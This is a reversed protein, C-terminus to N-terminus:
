KLLTMRITCCPYKEDSLINKRKTCFITSVSLEMKPLKGNRKKVSSNTPILMRRWDDYATRLKPYFPIWHHPAMWAATLLDTITNSSGIPLDTTSSRCPILRNWSASSRIAYLGSFDRLKAQVSGPAGAARYQISVRRWNM